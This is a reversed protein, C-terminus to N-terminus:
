VGTDSVEFIAQGNDTSSRLTIIGGTTMADVANFILNTAVDRLESANGSVPPLKALDLEVQITRGDALAQGKWKPQTLPVAQEIVENLDVRTFVDTMERPRYFDRLRGIVQSADRGATNMIQLFERAVKYDRLMEDDNLLIESYGIVSMLANNFDHVIGGAMEGFARLREQAVVQQQMALLERTREAVKVELTENQGQLQLHLFRIQLLNRIRMFVEASNFPKTVLDTAGAALAKRKTEGTADATLVLVPLFTGRPIVKGLEQMVAFGDLHPMNLDLIILDPRFEAVHEFTERSDSITDIQTFGLRHLINRLLSINAVCDDVILLRADPNLESM